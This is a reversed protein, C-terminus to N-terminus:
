VEKCALVAEDLNGKNKFLLAKCHMTYATSVHSKGWTEEQIDLAQQTIELAEETHGQLNRLLAINNLIEAVQGHDPGLQESKIRLAEMCLKEVTDDCEGRKMRVGAINNLMTAVEIHEKGLLEERIKISEECCELSRDYEGRLLLVGALNNLTDAVMLSKPMAHRRIALAQEYYECSKAFFGQNKCVNGLNNSITGIAMHNKGLKTRFVALAQEYKVTAEPLQYLTEYVVAMNNYISAVDVHCPGLKSRRIQLAEAFRSLANNLDGKKEYLIALANVNIAVDVHDPDLVAKRIRLAEEHRAIARDFEGLSKHIDGIRTTIEAVVLRYESRDLGRLRRLVENYQQMAEEIQGASLMVSGLLKLPGTLKSHEPFFHKSRIAVIEDLKAIAAEHDGTKVHINAIEELVDAIDLEANEQTVLSHLSSELFTLSLEMMGLEVRVFKAVRQCIKSRVQYDEIKDVMGRFGEWIIDRFKQAGGAKEPLSRYHKEIVKWSAAFATVHQPTSLADFVALECYFRVIENWQKFYEALPPLEIMKRQNVKTKGDAYWFTTPMTDVQRDTSLMYTLERSRLALPQIQSLDGSFYTYMRKRLLSSDYREKCHWRFSSNKWQMVPNCGPLIHEEVLSGVAHLLNSVASPPVRAYPPVCWKFFDKLLDDDKSAFDVMEARSLGAKAISMAGLVNAVLGKNFTSELMSFLEHVVNPINPSVSISPPADFSKWTKSSCYNLQLVSATAGDTSASATGLLVAKQLSTLDRKDQQLWLQLLSSMEEPRLSALHLWESELSLRDKLEIYVQGNKNPPNNSSVTAVLFCNDPLSDVPLWHLCPTGDVVPDLQDLGDLIILVRRSEGAEALLMGFRVTLELYDSPVPTTSQVVSTLQLCISHMVDRGSRLSHSIGIARFIILPAPEGHDGSRMSGISTSTNPEMHNRAVQVLAVCLLKTKGCGESGTIIMTAGSRKPPLYSFLSKERDFKQDLFDRVKQLAESRGILNKGREELWLMHRSVELEIDSLKPCMTLQDALIKAAMETIRDGVQSIYLQHKQNDLNIGEPEWQVSFNLVNEAPIASKLTTRVRELAIGAQADQARHFEKSPDRKEFISPNYSTKQVQIDTYVMAMPDDPNIQLINRNVFVSRTAKKTPNMKADLLVGQIASQIGTPQLYTDAEDQSLAGCLLSAQVAHKIDELMPVLYEKEWTQEAKERKAQDDVNLFDPVYKDIRQLTYVPPVTNLDKVYCNALKEGRSAKALEVLFTEFQQADINAPLAQRGYKDGLVVILAPGFSSNVTRSTERLRLECISHSADREQDQEWRSEGWELHMGVVRAFDRLALFCDCQLLEREFVTDLQSCVMLAWQHGTAASLSHVHRETLFAPGFMLRRHEEEPLKKRAEDAYVLMQRLEAIKTRNRLTRPKPGYVKYALGPGGIGWSGHSSASTPTPASAGCGM